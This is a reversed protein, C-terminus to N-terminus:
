GAARLGGRQAAIWALMTEAIRPGAQGDGYPLSPRSMTARMAPDTLRMVLAIIRDRTTGALIM